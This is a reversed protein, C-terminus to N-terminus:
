RLLFSTFLLISMVLLFIGSAVSGLVLFMGTGGFITAAVIVEDVKYMSTKRNMEKGGKLSLM